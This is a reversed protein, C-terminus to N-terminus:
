SRRAPAAGSEGPNKAGPWPKAARAALVFEKRLPQGEFGDPLLLPRLDPHGAFGIGFMEATEREHWSAGRYVGTVTALEPRERPVRTRILLDAHTAPSWVHAVVSFGAELEDVATLWDFFSCGLEDRAWTLAWIWLEAPVDATLLGFTVEASARDGFRDRLAVGIDDPTM